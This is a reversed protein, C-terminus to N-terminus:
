IELRDVPESGIPNNNADFVTRRPKNVEGAVQRLGNEIAGLSDEINDSMAKVAVAQQNISEAVARLDDVEVTHTIADPVSVPV